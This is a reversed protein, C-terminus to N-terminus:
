NKIIKFKTKNIKVKEDYIIHNYFEIYKQFFIYKSSKVYFNNTRFAKMILRVHEVHKEENKSFILINDLYIIVFKNLYFKFMDNM